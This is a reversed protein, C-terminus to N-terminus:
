KKDSFFVGKEFGLYFVANLVYQYTALIAVLARVFVFAAFAILLSIIQEPAGLYVVVFGLLYSLITILFFIIFAKSINGKHKSSVLVTQKLIKSFNLKELTSIPYILFYFFVFWFFMLALAAFISIWLLISDRSFLAMTILIAIPSIFVLILGLIALLSSFISGFRRLVSIFAARFSITGKKYFENVMVPYMPNVIFFDISNILLGYLSIFLMPIFLSLIKASEAPTPSLSFQSIDLQIAYYPLLIFSPLLLFAIVIKPIFFHPCKKLLAFSDVLIRKFSM